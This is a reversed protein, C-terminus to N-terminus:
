VEEWSCGHQNRMHRYGDSPEGFQTSCEGHPCVLKQVRKMHVKRYHGRVYEIKRFLEDKCGEIKCHFVEKGASDTEKRWGQNNEEEESMELDQRM